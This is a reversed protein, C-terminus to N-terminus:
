HRKKAAPNGSRAAGTGYMRKQAPQRQDIGSENKRRWKAKGM